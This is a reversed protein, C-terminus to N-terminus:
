FLLLDDNPPFKRWDHYKHRSSEAYLKAPTDKGNWATNLHHYIHSMATRFDGAECAKNKEIELITRDLEKKAERLHVLVADHNM